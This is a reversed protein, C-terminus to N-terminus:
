KPAAARTWAREPLPPLALEPYVEAALKQAAHATRPGFSLFYSPVPVLRQERAAPTGVFAPLAFMTKADMGHNREHLTIVVEPAAALVSEAVAPKYGSVDKMANDLGALTFIGDASTKGGGITPAGNGVTLVFIGKRHKSITARAAEMNRFDQRITDTMSKGREQEGLTAAIMEVKRLVAAEDYGEPVIVFPVGARALTAVVDPPGSGETAVILTPALSLVGEASLARMYGVSPKGSVAPPFTSTIDVAVVEDGHGLAFVVETVAAGITVIRSTDRIEVTRGDGSTVIRATQALVGNCSLMALVLSGILLPRTLLM